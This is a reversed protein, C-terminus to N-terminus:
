KRLKHKIKQQRKWLILEFVNKSQCKKARVSSLQRLHLHIFAQHLTLHSWPKVIHTALKFQQNERIQFKNWKMRTKDSNLNEARLSRNTKMLHMLKSNSNCTSTPHWVIKCVFGQLDSFKAQNIVALARMFLEKSHAVISSRWVWSNTKIKVVIWWLAFSDCHIVFSLFQPGSLGSIQAFQKYILRKYCKTKKAEEVLRNGIWSKTGHKNRSLSFSPNRWNWTHTTRKTRTQVTCRPVMVEEFVLVWVDETWVKVPNKYWDWM